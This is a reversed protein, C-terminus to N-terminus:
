REAPRLRITVDVDGRDAVRVDGFRLPRATEARWDRLAVSVDLSEAPLPGFAFTGASDTWASWFDITPDDFHFGLGPPWARKPRDARRPLVRGLTVLTHAPPPTGDPLQVHGTLRRAPPPEIRGLEGAAGPAATRCHRLAAGGHSAFESMLAYVVVDTRAPLQQFAFEGHAGTVLEQRPLWCEDVDSEAQVAVTVGAVGRGSAVFRGSLRAGRNMRITNGDTGASVSDVIASAWGRAEVMLVWLTKGDETGAPVTYNGRGPRPLVLTFRGAEDSVASVAGSIADGMSVKDPRRSGVQRVLAGEIPQGGPDLVRGTVLLYGPVERPDRPVLRVDLPSSATRVRDVIMPAHGKASALLRFRLHSDLQAIEFRGAADTVARKACDPWCTPCVTGADHLTGSGRLPAAAYPRVVAGAIPAGLTDRVTGTLSAAGALRAVCSLLVFSSLLRWGPVHMHM